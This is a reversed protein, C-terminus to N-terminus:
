PQGHTLESTVELRLNQLESFWRSEVGRRLYCWVGLRWDSSGALIGMIPMPARAAKYRSIRKLTARDKSSLHCIGDPHTHWDGLYTHIRGSHVYFRSIEAEHFDSDPVFATRKHIAKPGPGTIATIAVAKYDESWYGMLVGGTELPYRRAAEALMFDFANRGM